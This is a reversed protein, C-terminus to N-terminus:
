RLVNLHAPGGTTCGAGPRSWRVRGAPGTVVAAHMARNPAIPMAVRLRASREAAPPNLMAASATVLIAGTLGIFLMDLPDFRAAIPAVGSYINAICIHDRPFLFLYVYWTLIGLLSPTPPALRRATRTTAIDRHRPVTLPTMPSLHQPGLTLLPARAPILRLRIPDALEPSEAMVPPGKRKRGAAARTGGSSAEKHARAATVDGRRLPKRAGRKRPQEDEDEDVDMVGDVEEEGEGDTDKPEFDSDGSSKADGSPDESAM